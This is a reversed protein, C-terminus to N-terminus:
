KETLKMMIHLEDCRTRYEFNGYVELIRIWYDQLVTVLDASLCNDL